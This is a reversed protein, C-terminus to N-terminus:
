RRRRATAAITPPAIKRIRSMRTMELAPPLSGAGSLVGDSRPTPPLGVTLVGLVSREFDFLFVSVSPSVLEPVTAGAVGGAVPPVPPPVVAVGTAGACGCGFPPPTPWAGACGAGACGSPSPPPAAAGVDGELGFQPM